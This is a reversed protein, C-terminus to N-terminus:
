HKNPKCRFSPSKTPISTKSKNIKTKTRKFTGKRKNFKTTRKFIGGEQNTSAYTDSILKKFDEDTFNFVYRMKDLRDFDLGLILGKAYKSLEKLLEPNM